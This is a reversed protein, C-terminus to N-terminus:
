GGATWFYHGFGGRFIWLRGGGWYTISPVDVPQPDEGDIPEPPEALALERVCRPDEPSQACEDLTPTLGPPALVPEVPPAVEDTSAALETTPQAAVAASALMPLITLKVVLSRRM